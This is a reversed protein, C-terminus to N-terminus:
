QKAEDSLIRKIHQRLKKVANPGMGHMVLLEDDTLQDVQKLTTINAAQLVRVAPAAVIPPINQDLHGMHKNYM